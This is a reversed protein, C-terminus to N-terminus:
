HDFISKVIIQSVVTTGVTLATKAAIAFRRRNTNKRLAELEEKLARREAELFVNLENTRGQASYFAVMREIAFIVDSRTEAAKHLDYIMVRIDDPITPPPGRPTPLGPTGSNM